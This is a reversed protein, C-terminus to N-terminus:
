ATTKVTIVSSVTNKCPIQSYILKGQDTCKYVETDAFSPLSFFLLFLCVYKM